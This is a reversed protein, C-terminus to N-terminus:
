MNRASNCVIATSTVTIGHWLGKQKGTIFSTKVRSLEPGLWINFRHSMKINRGQGFIHHHHQQKKYDNCVKIRAKGKICKKQQHPESLRADKNMRQPKSIRIKRWLFWKQKRCFWWPKQIFQPNCNIQTPPMSKSQKQFVSILFCFTIYVWQYLTDPERITLTLLKSYFHPVFHFPIQNKLLAPRVYFVVNNKQFAIAKSTSWNAKSSPNM